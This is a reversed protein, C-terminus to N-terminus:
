GAILPRTQAPSVKPLHLVQRAGPRSPLDRTGDAALGIVTVTIGDRFGIAPVSGRRTGPALLQQLRRGDTAVTAAPHANLEGAPHLQLQARPQHRDAAESVGVARARVAEV